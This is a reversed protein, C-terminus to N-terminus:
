VKQLMGSQCSWNHTQFDALERTAELCGIAVGQILTHMSVLIPLYILPSHLQSAETQLALTLLFFGEELFQM